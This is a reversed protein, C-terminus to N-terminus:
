VSLTSFAASIATFFASLRLFDRSKVSQVHTQAIEALVNPRFPNLRM